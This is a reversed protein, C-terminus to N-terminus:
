GGRKRYLAPKMYPQAPVMRGTHVKAGNADRYVIEHGEEVPGSHKADRSGIRGVDDGIVEFDLSDRLEGSDVPVGGVMDALIAPCLKAELLERKSVAVHAQWGAVERFEGM